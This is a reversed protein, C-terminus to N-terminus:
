PGEQLASEALMYGRSRITVLLEPREPDRELKERLRRVHMDITRTEM